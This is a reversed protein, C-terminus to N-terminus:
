PSSSRKRVLLLTSRGQPPLRQRACGPLFRQSSTQLALQGFAAPQLLHPGIHRGAPQGGAGERLLAPSLPLVSDAAGARAHGKIHGVLGQEALEVPQLCLDGLGARDVGGIRGVQAVQERGAVLQPRRQLALFQLRHIGGQLLEIARDRRSREWIAPM